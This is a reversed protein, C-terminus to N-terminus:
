HKTADGRSTLLQSLRNPHVSLTRPSSQHQQSRTWDATITLPRGHSLDVQISDIGHDSM